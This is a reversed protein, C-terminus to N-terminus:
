PIKYAFILIDDVQEQIGRWEEFFKDLEEKQEEMPKSSVDLLLKKFPKTRLKKNGEGGFQDPYGDTFQYIIDGSNVPIIVNEFEVNRNYSNSGISSKTGKYELLDGDRIIYIPRMAGSFHIENRKKFHVIMSLDMGDKPQLSNQSFQLYGNLRKNFLNLATSPQIVKEDNVVNNIINYAFMSMFAGPVGHGTCDISLLVETDGYNHYWYFDGSVIDKPKHLIFYDKLFQSIYEKRPLIASQLRRAYLISDTIDKNKSELANKQIEILRNRDEVLKNQFILDNHAEHREKIRKRNFILGLIFVVVTLIAIAVAWIKQIHEKNSIADQEAKRAKLLENEKEIQETKYKEQLENIKYSTKEGFVMEKVAQLDNQIFFAKKYDGKEQYVEKLDELVRIEIEMSKIQRSLAAAKNLYDIAMRYDKKRKSIKSIVQIAQIEGRINKNLQASEKAKKAYFEAMKLKGLQALVLGKGAYADTLNPYNIEREFIRIAGEYFELAKPYKRRMYYIKGLNIWTNAIALSDGGELKIELSRQYYGLADDYMRLAEYIEGIGNEVKGIDNRSGEDEFYDLAKHYAKLAKDYIGMEFYAIGMARHVEGLTELYDGPIVIKAKRYYDIATVYDKKYYFIVGKRHLGLGIDYDSKDKKAAEIYKDIYYLSSDHNVKTYIFFDSINKYLKYNDPQKRSARKLSDLIPHDVGVSFSFQAIMVFGIALLLRM